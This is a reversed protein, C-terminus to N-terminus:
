APHNEVLRRIGERWNVLRDPRLAEIGSTDMVTSPIATDTEVIKPPDCGDIEAMYACWEAVSVLGPSAWNLTTAPVAAQDLLVPLDAAIDEDHVLNYRAGDTHVEIDMGARMMLLHFFPWGTTDGYPVNLRAIVTPLNFEQAGFRAVSEGAIKCISYTPMMHAHHNGHPSDETFPQGGNPQYVAGSSCHLFAEAGRFHSMLHGTAESCVALDTRWDGTKIVALNVVVDVDRPVASFDAEVFDVAICEVGGAELDARAGADSFRALAIVRNDAALTKCLPPGVMGTPGTVVITKNRLEM